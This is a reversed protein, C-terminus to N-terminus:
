IYNLVCGFMCEKGEWVRIYMTCNTVMIPSRAYSCYMHLEVSVDLYCKKGSQVYMYVACNMVM